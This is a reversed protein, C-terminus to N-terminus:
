RRAWGAPPGGPGCGGEPSSRDDNNNNTNTNTNTNTITIIM